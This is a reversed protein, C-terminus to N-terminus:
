KAANTWEVIKALDGTPQPQVLPLEGLLVCGSTGDITIMDGDTCTRGLSTMRASDYSIRMSIAGCICPKGMSRAVVAAHSTMGGGSTLIAIAADMGGVDHPSTEKRVLIVKQGRDRAAIADKSNFVIKGAAAGPSAPLGKTFIDQEADPDVIQTVLRALASPNIRSVAEARSILGEDAMEVACRLSAKITRKGKRTQLLWLKGNEVTFEVDQMESYHGELKKLV